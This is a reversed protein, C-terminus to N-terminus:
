SLWMSLDRELIKSTREVDKKYSETLAIRLKDSLQPKQINKGGTINRLIKRTGDKVFGPLRFKQSYKDLHYKEFHVLFPYNIYRAENQPTLDPVFSNDVELFTFVDQVIKIESRKMDDFLVVKVNNKGFADMVRKLQASYLGSNYYLFNYFYENNNRYFSKDNIRKEEAKLAKEFTNIFEYGHYTMFNYLSFAREVPNRLMILIKPEKIVEKILNPSEPYTLYPGSGDGLIKESEALSYLNLYEEKEKIRHKHIPCFFCSEKHEVKEPFFIEPHQELYYWMSTTGAKAAGMM